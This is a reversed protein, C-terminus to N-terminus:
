KSLVNMWPVYCGISKQEFCDRGWPNTRDIKVERRFELPPLATLFLDGTNVMTCRSHTLSFHHFLRGTSKYSRNIKWESLASYQMEETEFSTEYCHFLQWVTEQLLPRGIFLCAFQASMVAYCLLGMFYGKSIELYTNVFPIGVSFRITSDFFFGFNLCM